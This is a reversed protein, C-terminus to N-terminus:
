ERSGAIRERLRTTSYGPELPVHIVTWPGETAPADHGGTTHAGDSGGSVVVDPEIRSLFEAPPEDIEVVCDVAALAALIEARESAPTVLPLPEGSESPQGSHVSTAARARVRADSEIAVLLVNGAPRAQELLRVHGPHLLDFVGLVCVVVEGRRKWEGRRIALEGHSVVQGLRIERLASM